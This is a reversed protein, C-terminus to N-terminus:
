GAAWRDDNESNADIVEVGREVYKDCQQMTLQAPGKLLLSPANEDVCGHGPVEGFGPSCACRAKGDLM